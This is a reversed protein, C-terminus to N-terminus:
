IHMQYDHIVNIVISRKLSKTRLCIKSVVFVYKDIHAAAKVSVTVWLGEGSKSFIVEGKLFIRNPGPASGEMHVRSLKNGKLLFTDVTESASIKHLCGVGPIFHLCPVVVKFCSRIFLYNSYLQSPSSIVCTRTVTCYM